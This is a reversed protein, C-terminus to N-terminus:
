GKLAALAEASAKLNSIRCLRQRANRFELTLEGIATRQIGDFTKPTTDQDRISRGNLSSMGFGLPDIIWADTDPVDPDAVITMGQGNIDNVIVAVYSGRVDDSRLIQLRDRYEASLVRAQGPNCLIQVPNGGEALVSQAGDNILFSDLLAGGADIDLSNEGAAFAYL